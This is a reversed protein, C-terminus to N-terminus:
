QKAKCIIFLEPTNLTGSAPRLSLACSSQRRNSLVADQLYALSYPAPNFDIYFSQPSRQVKASTGIKLRECTPQDPVLNRRLTESLNPAYFDPDCRVAQAIWETRNVVVLTSSLAAGILGFTLCGVMEWNPKNHPVIVEQAIPGIKSAIYGTIILALAGGIPLYLARDVPDFPVVLVAAICGVILGIFLMLCRTRERGKPDIFFCFFIAITLCVFFALDTVAATFSPAVPTFLAILTDM